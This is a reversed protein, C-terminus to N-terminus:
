GFPHPFLDQAPSSRDHRQRRVGAVKRAAFSALPEQGRGFSIPIMGPIIARGVHLPTRGQHLSAGPPTLDFWLVEYGSGILLSCLGNWDKAGNRGVESLSTPQGDRGLFDARRYYRRQAYLDMHDQPTEVEDPQLVRPTGIALRTAVGAELETLASELAEEADFASGATTLTFGGAASQAFVFLVPALGLSHDKVVVDVGADNLARLRAAVAAPLSAPDVTPRSARSLWTVMFADREILELV